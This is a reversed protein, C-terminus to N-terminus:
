NQMNVIAPLVPLVLFKQSMFKFTRAPYNLTRYLPKSMCMHIRLMPPIKFEASDTRM